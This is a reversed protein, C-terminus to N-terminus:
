CVGAISGMHLNGLDVRPPEQSIAAKEMGLLCIQAPLSLM